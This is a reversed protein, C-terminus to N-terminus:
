PNDAPLSCSWGSSGNNSDRISNSSGRGALVCQPQNVFRDSRRRVGDPADEFQTKPHDSSKIWRARRIQGLAVIRARRWVTSPCIEGIPPPGRRPAAQGSPAPLGVVKTMRLRRPAAGYGTIGSHALMTADRSLSPHRRLLTTAQPNQPRQTDSRSPLALAPCSASM